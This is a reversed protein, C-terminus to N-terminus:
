CAKIEEQWAEMMVKMEEQLAKMRAEKREQGAKMIAIIQKKKQGAKREEQYSDMKVLLCEMIREM